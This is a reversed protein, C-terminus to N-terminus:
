VRVTKLDHAVNAILHRLESAAAEDALAENQALTAQLRKTLLYMSLNQRHSEYYILFTGVVYILAPVIFHMWPVYKGHIPIGTLLLAIVAFLWSLMILEYRTDRIVFYYTMPALLLALSTGAPLATGDNCYMSYLTENDNTERWGSCDGIRVKANLLASFYITFLILIWNQMSGKWGKIRSMLTETDNSKQLKLLLLLGLLLLLLLEVSLACIHLLAIRSSPPSMSMLIFKAVVDVTLLVASGMAFFFFTSLSEQLENYKTYELEDKREPPEAQVRVEENLAIPTSITKDSTHTKSQDLLKTATGEYKSAAGSEIDAM